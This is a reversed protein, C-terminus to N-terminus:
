NISFPRRYRDHTGPRDCSRGDGSAKPTLAKGIWDTATCATPRRALGIGECWRAPWGDEKVNYDDSVGATGNRRM